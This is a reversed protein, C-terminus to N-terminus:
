LHNEPLLTGKGSKTRHSSILRAAIFADSHDGQNAQCNHNRSPALYRRALVGYVQWITKGRKNDSTM